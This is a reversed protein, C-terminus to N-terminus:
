FYEFLYQEDAESFEHYDEQRLDDILARLASEEELVGRECAARLFLTLDWVDVNRNGAVRGVHRDDTLLRTERREAIAVLEADTYTLSSDLVDETRDIEEDSPAVVHLWGDNSRTVDDIRDVFAFGRVAERHLEDRVSTTTAVRDFVEDLLSLRDIKALSSLVNNDVLTM